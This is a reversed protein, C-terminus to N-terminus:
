LGTAMAGPHQGLEVVGPQGRIQDALPEVHIVAQYFFDAHRLVLRAQRPDHDLSGVAYGEVCRRQQIWWPEDNINVVRTGGRILSLSEIASAPADTGELGIRTSVRADGGRGVRGRVGGASGVM